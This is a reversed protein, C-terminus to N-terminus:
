EIPHTTLKDEIAKRIRNRVDKSLKPIDKRVVSELYEVRFSM